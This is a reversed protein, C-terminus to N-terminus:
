FLRLNLPCIKLICSPVGDLYASPIVNVGTALGLPRCFVMHISDVVM